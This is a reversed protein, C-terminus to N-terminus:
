KKGFLLKEMEGVPRYGPIMEGNDLVIAPTGRIGFEEGLAIHKEVPNECTAKRIRRSKTANTMTKQPNKSCWVSVSKDYSKQGKFPLFLYRVGIGKTMYQDIESHLRRCYPCDIDTFVYIFRKENEATYALTSEKGLKELATKRASNEAVETLNVANDLDYIDGQFLFRGDKTLYFVRAGINFQKIDTVGSDKFEGIEAGPFLKAIKAQLIKHQDDAAQSTAGFALLAGVLFFQVLTKM